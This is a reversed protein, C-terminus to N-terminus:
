QSVELDVNVTQGSTTTEAPPNRSFRRECEACVMVEGVRVGDAFAPLPNLM